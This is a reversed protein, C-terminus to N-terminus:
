DRHAQRGLHTTYRLGGMPRLGLLLITGGERSGRMRHAHRM